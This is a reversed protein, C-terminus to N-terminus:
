IARFAVIRTNYTYSFLDLIDLGVKVTQLGDENRYGGNERGESNRKSLPWSIGM